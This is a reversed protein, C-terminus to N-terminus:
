SGDCSSVGDTTPSKPPSNESNTACSAAQDANTQPNQSSTAEGVFTSSYDSTYDIAMQTSDPFKFKEEVEDDDEEMEVDSSQKGDAREGDDENSEDNEDEDEDEDDDDEADMFINLHHAIQALPVILPGNSTEIIVRNMGGPENFGFNYRHVEEMQDDVHVDLHRDDLQPDQGPSPMPFSTWLVWCSQMLFGWNEPHRSSVYSPFHNVQIRKILNADGEVEKVSWRFGQESGSFERMAEFSDLRELTGDAKFKRVITSAVKSGKHDHSWYPDIQMWHQGASEKFRFRWEFLLLEERTPHERKADRLSECFAHLANGQKMARIRKPVYAKDRWLRDCLHMWVANDKSYLHWDKCVRACRAVDKLALYCFAQVLSDKPLVPLPRRAGSGEGEARAQEKRKQAASLRASRRGNM